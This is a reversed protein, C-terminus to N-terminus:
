FEGLRESKNILNNKLITINKQQLLIFINHLVKKVDFHQPAHSTLKKEIEACM